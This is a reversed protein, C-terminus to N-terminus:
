TIKTERDKHLCDNKIRTWETMILENAEELSMADDLTQLYKILSEKWASM